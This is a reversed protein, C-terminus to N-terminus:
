GKIQYLDTARKLKSILQFLRDQNEDACCEVLASGVVAGDFHSKVVTRVKDPTKLGFGAVIMAQTHRRIRKYFIPLENLTAPNAGTTGVYTQAYIISAYKAIASMQHDSMTPQIFQVVDVGYDGVERAMEYSEEYSCDPVLLADVLQESALQKYFNSQFLDAKYGMAWIPKQVQQRMNRLLMLLDDVMLNVRAHGNQIIPGDMYPNRSPIGLELIDLGALFSNEIIKLSKPITPDGAILYGILLAEQQQKM